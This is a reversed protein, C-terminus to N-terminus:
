QTPGDATRQAHARAVPQRSPRTTSGLTTDLIGQARARPTGWQRQQELRSGQRPDPICAPQGNVTGVQRRSGREGGPVRPPRTRWQRSLTHKGTVTSRRPSSQESSDRQGGLAPREPSLVTVLETSDRRGRGGCLTSEDRQTEGARHSDDRGTTTSLHAPRRAAAPHSAPNQGPPQLSDSHQLGAPGRVRDCREVRNPLATAALATPALM